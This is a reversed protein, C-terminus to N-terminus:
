RRKSPPWSWSVLARPVLSTAQGFISRTPQGTEGFWSPTGAGTKALIPTAQDFFLSLTEPVSRFSKESPLALDAMARQSTPSRRFAIRVEAPGPEEVPQQEALEPEVPQQEALEPEVRRQEALEPEVRRQEALEPEVLEPELRRREVPQREV